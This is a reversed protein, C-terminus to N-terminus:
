RRRINRNEAVGDDDAADVADIENTSRHSLCSGILQTVLFAQVISIPMM